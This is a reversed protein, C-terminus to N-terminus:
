LELIQALLLIPSRWRVMLDGTKLVESQRQLMKRASNVFNQVEEDM